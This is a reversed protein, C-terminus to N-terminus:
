GRRAKDLKDLAVELHGFNKLTTYGDTIELRLKRAAEVVALVREIDKAMLLRDEGPEEELGVWHAWAKLRLLSNGSADTDPKPQVPNLEYWVGDVIATKM